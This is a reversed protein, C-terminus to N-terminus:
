SVGGDDKTEVRALTVYRKPTGSSGWGRPQWAFPRHEGAWLGTVSRWAFLAGLWALVALVFVDGVDTYLTSDTGTQISGMALGETFLGPVGAVVRGYGDIIQSPGTNSAILVPVRNEVARMVSMLNHQRPAASRGFWVDNTLQVLLHAGNHVSERALPAFLNEWCILTGVSLRDTVTFLHAGDGPTMESVRPALWEPWPIVDPHPLYEAFPVLVRKRYPQTLPEGPRVLYASNFARRGVTMEQDNTAFKEVEATGVILPIGITDSLSQVRTLLLPDTHLDGPIASEPWVIMAPHAAAATRTLQELREMNARRGEDTKREAIQINPQIATVAITEGQPVSSLVAMGWVHALALVIGAIVAARRERKLILGALAANGLAVLFTVAHEGGLSAVQLIALNLHQAQALTGWPLALFEAHARAYDVAVWLVPATVLLPVQRRTLWATAACWVTPYISVYLALVVAHRMDFSPVEFLWGYIGFSAVIGTMLGLGAARLPRLGHCAVILPVLAVWGLWGIDPSPLSCILLASSLLALLVRALPSEWFRPADIQLRDISLSQRPPIV